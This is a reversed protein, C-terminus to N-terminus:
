NSDTNKNDKFQPAQSILTIQQCGNHFVVLSCMIIFSYFYYTVEESPEIRTSPLKLENNNYNYGLGLEIFSFRQPSLLLPLFSTIFLADSLIM